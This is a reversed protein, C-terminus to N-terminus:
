GDNSTKEGGRRFRGEKELRADLVFEVNDRLHPPIEVAYVRQDSELTKAEEDTLMWHTMRKSGERPDAVQVSRDPIPSDGTSAALEADFAALDVGKHVIVVYEREM